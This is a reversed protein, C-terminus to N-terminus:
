GRMFIKARIDITIKRSHIKKYLVSLEFQCICSPSFVVWLTKIDDVTSVCYEMYWIFYSEKFLKIYTFYYHIQTMLQRNTFKM